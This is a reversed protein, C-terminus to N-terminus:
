GIRAMERSTFGTMEAIRIKAKMLNTEIREKTFKQLEDFWHGIAEPDNLITKGYRNYSPKGVHRVQATTMENVYKGYSIDTGLWITMVLKNIEVKSESLTKLVDARLKGTDKPVKRKIWEQVEFITQNLVQNLLEKLLSMVESYTMKNKGVLYKIDDKEIKLSDKDIISM